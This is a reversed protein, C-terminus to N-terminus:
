GLHGVHLTGLLSGTIDIGHEQPPNGSELSGVHLSGYHPGPGTIYLNAVAINVDFSGDATTTGIYMDNHVTGRVFFLGSIEGVETAGDTGLDHEIKFEKVASSVGAQDLQLLYVHSAGFQRGDHGRVMIEVNGINALATISGIPAPHEPPGTSDDYCEFDYPGLQATSAELIVISPVDEESWTVDYDEGEVYGSHEELVVDGYALTCLVVGALACAVRSCLRKRM